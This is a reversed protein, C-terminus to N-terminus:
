VADSVARCATVDASDVPRVPFGGLKDRGLNSFAGDACTERGPRTGHHAISLVAHRGLGVPRASALNPCPGPVPHRRRAAPGVERVSAENALLASAFRANLRSTSSPASNDRPTIAFNAMWKPHLCLSYTNRTTSSVSSTTPRRRAKAALLVYDLRGCTSSPRSYAYACCNFSRLPGRGLQALLTSPDPQRTNRGLPFLFLASM